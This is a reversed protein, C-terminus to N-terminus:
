RGTAPTGQGLVRDFGGYIAAIRGASAESYRGYSTITFAGRFSSFSFQLGPEEKLATVFRCDEVDLGGFRLTGPDMNGLNTTSLRAARMKRRLLAGLLPPPLIAAADRLLLISGLGPSGAKIGATKRAIEGALEAAPRSINGISFSEMSSANSYPSLAGGTDYRRADVMFALELPWEGAPAGAGGQRARAIAAAVLAM